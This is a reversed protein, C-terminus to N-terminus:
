SSFSTLLSVSMIYTYICIYSSKLTFSNWIHLTIEFQEYYFDTPPSLILLRALRPPPPLHLLLSPLSLFLVCISFFRELQHIQSLFYLSTMVGPALSTARHYLTQTTLVFHWGQVKAFPYFLLLRPLFPQPPLLLLFVSFLTTKSLECVHDQPDRLLDDADGERPKRIHHLFSFFCLAMGHSLSHPLLIRHARSTIYDSCDPGRLPQPQKCETKTLSSVQWSCTSTLPPSLPEDAM